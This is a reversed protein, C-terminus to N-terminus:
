KSSSSVSNSGACLARPQYLGLTPTGSVNFYVTFGATYTNLVYQELRWPTFYARHVPGSAMAHGPEVVTPPLRTPTISQLTYHELANLHTHPQHPHTLHVTYKATGTPQPQTHSHPM